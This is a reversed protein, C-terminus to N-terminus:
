PRKKSGLHYSKEPDHDLSSCPGGKQVAEERASNPLRAGIGIVIVSPFLWSVARRGRMDGCTYCTHEKGPKGATVRPKKRYTPLLPCSDPNLLGSAPFPAPPQKPM